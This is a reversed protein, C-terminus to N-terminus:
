HSRVFHILRGLFIALAMMLLPILCGVSLLIGRPKSTPWLVPLRM